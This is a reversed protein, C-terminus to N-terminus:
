VDKGGGVKKLARMIAGVEDDREALDDVAHQHDDYVDDATAPEDRSDDSSTNTTSM